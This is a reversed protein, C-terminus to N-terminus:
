KKVKQRSAKTVLTHKGHKRTMVFEGLKHGIKDETIFVDVFRRGNYVKFLVKIYETLIIFNKAYVKIVINKKKSEKAKKIFNYIKKNVYIGKKASRMSM